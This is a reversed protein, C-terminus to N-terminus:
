RAPSASVPAEPNEELEAASPVEGYTEDAAMLEEDLGCVFTFAEKSVEVIKALTEASEEIEKLEKTAESKKANLTWRNIHEQAEEMGLVAAQLQGRKLMYDTLSQNMNLQATEWATANSNIDATAKQDRRKEAHQVREFPRRMEPALRAPTTPSARAPPDNVRGLARLTQRMPTAYLMYQMQYDDLTHSEDSIVADNVEPAKIARAAGEDSAVEAQGVADPSALRARQRDRGALQRANLADDPIADHVAPDKPAAEIAKLDGM